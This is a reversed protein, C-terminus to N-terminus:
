HARSSSANGSARRCHQSGSVGLPWPQSVTAKVTLSKHLPVHAAHPGVPMALQGGRSPSRTPRQIVLHGLFVWWVGLGLVSRLLKKLPTPVPAPPAPCAQPHGPCSRGAEVSPVPLFQHEASRPRPHAPCPRPWGRGGPVHGSPFFSLLCARPGSLKHTLGFAICLQKQQKKVLIFLDTGTVASLLGGRVQGEQGKGVPKQCLLSFAGSDGDHSLSGPFFVPCTATWQLPSRLAPGRGAWGM